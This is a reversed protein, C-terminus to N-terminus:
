DWRSIFGKGPWWNYKGFLSMVAPVLAPRVLFTDILISLALAFGAQRMIWIDALLLSSFAGTLILGCVTIVLGTKEVANAIAREEAEGAALEERIRSTLFIDYDMGLTLMLGLVTIPVVWYIPSSLQAGQIEQGLLLRFLLAVFLMSVVSSFTVTLLLRVPVLLSGMGLMLYLTILAAALPLTFTFFERTIYSVVDVRIAPFGTLLAGEPLLERIERVVSFIRDDLPDLPLGGRALVYAGREEITVDKMLGREELLGFPDNLKVEKPAVVIAAVFAEPPFSSFLARSGQVYRSDDTLSMYVNGSVGLEILYAAGAITVLIMIVTLLAGHKVSFEAMRRLLVNQAGGTVKLSGSPWFTRREGLFLLAAPFLTYSSLFSTASAISLAIGIGRVADIPTFAYALFGLVVSVGGLQLARGARRWAQFVAEEWSLGRSREEAVRFLYFVSYDVTIGFVIPIMLARALYHVDFYLSAVSLAGLSVVLSVATSGLIVAPASLSRVLIALLLIVLIVTAVDIRRIEELIEKSIDAHFPVSGYFYIERVSGALEEEVKKMLRSGDEAAISAPFLAYAAGKEGALLRKRVEQPLVEPYPAVRSIFGECLHVAEEPRAGVLVKELADVMCQDISGLVEKAMATAAEEPKQLLKLFSTFSVGAEGLGSREYLFQAAKTVNDYERLEFYQLLPILEPSAARVAEIMAEKAAREPEMSAALRKFNHHFLTLLLLAEGSLHQSLERYAEGSPDLSGAALAQQYIRLYAAATGYTVILASLVKQYAARLEIGAKVLEERKTAAELLSGELRRRVEGRAESYASYPGIVKAGYGATAEALAREVSEATELDNPSFLVVLYEAAAADGANLSRLIELGRYGESHPPVFAEESYQLRRDLELAQPAMILFLLAWLLISLTAYRRM